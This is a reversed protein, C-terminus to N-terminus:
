GALQDDDVLTTQDAAPCEGGNGYGGGGGGRYGGRGGSREGQPTAENVRVSRGMFDQGNMSDIATQADAAAM